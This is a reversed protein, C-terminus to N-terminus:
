VMNLCFDTFYETLIHLRLTKLTFAQSAGSLCRVPNSAAWFDLLKIEKSM